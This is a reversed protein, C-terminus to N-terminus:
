EKKTRYRLGIYLIILLFIICLPILSNFWHNLEHEDVMNDKNYDPNDIVVTSLGILLDKLPKIETKFDDIEDSINKDPTPTPTYIPTPTPTVMQSWYVTVGKNFSTPYATNNLYIKWNPYSNIHNEDLPIRYTIEGENIINQYQNIVNGNNDKIIINSNNNIKYYITIDANNYTYCESESDCSVSLYEDDPYVVFSDSFLLIDDHLGHYGNTGVIGLIYTNQPSLFSTNLTFIEDELNYLLYQRYKAEYQKYSDIVPYLIYVEYPKQYLYEYKNNEYLKDINTYSIEINESTNYYTKDTTLTPADEDIDFILTEYYMNGYSDEVILYWPTINSSPIETIENDLVTESYIINNNYDKLIIISQNNSDRSYNLLNSFSDSYLDYSNYFSYVGNTHYPFGGVTTLVYPYPVNYGFMVTDSDADEPIDRKIDWGQFIDPNSIGDIDLWQTGSLGHNNWTDLDLWLYIIYNGGPTKYYGYKGNAIVNSGSKLEINEFYSNHTGILVGRFYHGTTTISMFQLGSAYVSFDHFYIKTLDLGYNGDGSPYNTYQTVGSKDIEGSSIYEMSASVNNISIIFLIMLISIKIKM